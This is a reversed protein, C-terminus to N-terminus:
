GNDKNGLNIVTERADQLEGRCRNCDLYKSYDLGVSELRHTFIVVGCLLDGRDMASLTGLADQLYAKYECCLRWLWPCLTFM